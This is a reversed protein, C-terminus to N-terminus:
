VRPANVAPPAPTKLTCRTIDTRVLGSFLQRKATATTEVALHLRRGDFARNASWAAM